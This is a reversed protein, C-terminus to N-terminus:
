VDASERLVKRCVDLVHFILTELERPLSVRDMARVVM